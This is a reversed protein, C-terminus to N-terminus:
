RPCWSYYITSRITVKDKIVGSMIRCIVEYLFPRIDPRRTLLDQLYDTSWGLISKAADRKHKFIEQAMEDKGGLLTRM